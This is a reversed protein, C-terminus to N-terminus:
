RPLPSASIASDFDGQAFDSNVKLASKREAEALKKLQEQRAIEIKRAQKKRWETRIRSRERFGALVV